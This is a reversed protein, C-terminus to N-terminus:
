LGRSQFLRVIVQYLMSPDVPKTLFDNMGAEICRLKDEYFANATLAVIPVDLGRGSARIRRTAELGDVNPMQMDMLILDYAQLRAREVAVAGDEALDVELGTDQLLISGIERNFEDDEVLLIRRGAYDKKLVLVPDMVPAEQPRVNSQADKDLRAIFWFTSGLGLESQVGVEGGMAEVLKKTIALGL